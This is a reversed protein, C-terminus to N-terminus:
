GIQNFIKWALWNPIIAYQDINDCDEIIECQSKPLWASTSVHNKNGSRLSININVRYAKGTEKVIEVACAKKNQKDAIYDAIMDIGDLKIDWEWSKKL